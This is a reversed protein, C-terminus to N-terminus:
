NEFKLYDMHWSFGNSMIEGTAIQSSRPVKWPVFGADKAAAVCAAYGLLKRQNGKMTDQYIMLITLLRLSRVIM